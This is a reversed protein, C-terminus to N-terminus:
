GGPRQGTLIGPHPETQADLEEAAARVSARLGATGGCLRVSEDAPDCGREVGPPRVRQPEVGRGRRLVARGRDAARRLVRRGIGVARVAPLAAGRQGGRPPQRDAPRVGPVRHQHRVGLQRVFQLRLRAGPEPLGPLAAHSPRRRLGSRLPGRADRPGGVHVPTCAHLLPSLGGTGDHVFHERLDPGGRPALSQRARPQHRRLVLQRAGARRRRDGADALQTRRLRDHGNSYVARRDLEHTFSIHNAGAWLEIRRSRNLPYATFLSLERNIQRIVELDEVYVTRGGLSAYYASLSGVSYPVQQAAVGWNWRSKRNEYAILGAFNDFSGLVQAMTVLNQDGLMDSWFLTAGGGFYTGFRDAGVVLSPQAIFDLSFRGRYRRTSDGVQAPLGTRADALMATVSVGTAHRELPPLVGPRGPADQLATGALVARDDIAQLEYGDSAYLTFVARGSLQAVSLAPSLATIGSAGSYLNTVQTMTGAALDLRYVNTIAGGDGLFYLSAGDPSWQPNIHKGRPLSPLESIEGSMADILGLRYSGYDLQALSTGFRDTVFAIRRGDPSWAPELDAYADDTLRQLRGGDFHYIFLDTVGGVQASFAIAAGDPAWTPNFIEGVTPFPIEREV